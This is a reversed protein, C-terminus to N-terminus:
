SPISDHYNSEGFSYSLNVLRAVRWDGLFIGERRSSSFFFGCVRALVLPITVLSTSAHFTGSADETAGCCECVLEDDDGPLDLLNSCQKCFILSGFRNSTTSAMFCFSEPLNPTPVTHTAGTTWVQYTNSIYDHNYRCGSHRLGRFPWFKWLANGNRRARFGRKCVSRSDQFQKKMMDIMAWILATRKSMSPRMISEYTGWRVGTSGIHLRRDLM